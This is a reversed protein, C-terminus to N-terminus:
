IKDKHDLMYSNWIKPDWVDMCSCKKCSVTLMGNELFYAFKFIHQCSNEYIQKKLLESDEREKEKNSKESLDHLKKFKQIESYSRDHSITPQISLIASKKIDAKTKRKQEKQKKLEAIKEPTWIIRKKIVEKMTESIKKNKEIRAEEAEQKEKEWEKQLDKVNLPKGRLISNELRLVYKPPLNLGDYKVEVKHSLNQISSSLSPNSSLKIPKNM